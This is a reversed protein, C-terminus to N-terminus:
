LRDLNPREVINLIKELAAGVKLVFAEQGAPAVIQLSTPLGSQSPGIPLALACM